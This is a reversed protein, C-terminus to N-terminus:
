RRRRRSPPFRLSTSCSYCHCWRCDRRECREHLNFYCRQRCDGSPVRMCHFGAISALTERSLMAKLTASWSPPNNEVLFRQPPGYPTSQTMLVVARQEDSLQPPWKCIECSERELLTHLLARVTNMAIVPSAFAFFERAGSWLFKLAFQYLLRHLAAEIGKLWTSANRPETSSNYDGVHFFCILTLDPNSTQLERLREYPNFSCGVKFRTLPGVNNHLYCVRLDTMIYVFGPRTGDPGAMAITECVECVLFRDMETGVDGDTEQVSSNPHACAAHRPPVPAVPPQFLDAVPTLPRLFAIQQRKKSATTTSAAETSTSSTTTSDRRALVKKKGDRTSKDSGKENDDDDKTDAEGKGGFGASTSGVIPDLSTKEMAVTIEVVDTDDRVDADDVDTGDSEVVDEHGVEANRRPSPALRCNTVHTSCEKSENYSFIQECKPCFRSVVKTKGTCTCEHKKQSPSTKFIASGSGDAVATQGCDRCIYHAPSKKM